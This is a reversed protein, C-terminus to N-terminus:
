PDKEQDCGLRQQSNLSRQLPTILPLQFVGSSPFPLAISPRYSAQQQFLGRFVLRFIRLGNLIGQNPPASHSEKVSVQSALSSTKLLPLLSTQMAKRHGAALRLEVVSMEALRRVTHMQVQM